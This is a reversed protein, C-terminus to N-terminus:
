NIAQIEDKLPTWGNFPLSWLTPEYKFEVSLSWEGGDYLPEESLEFRVFQLTDWPPCQPRHRDIHETFAAKVDPWLEAWRAMISEFTERHADSPAGDTTVTGRLHGLEACEITILGEWVTPWNSNM